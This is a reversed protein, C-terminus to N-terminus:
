QRSRSETTASVRAPNGILVTNAPYHGKVVSNPGVTCNDGLVTNGLIVAGAGIWCGKGINVPEFLIDPNASLRRDTPLGSQSLIM